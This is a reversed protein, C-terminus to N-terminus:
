FILHICIINSYFYCFSFVNNTKFFRKIKIWAFETKQQFVHHTWCWSMNHEHPDNKMHKKYSSNYCELGNFSFNDKLKNSWNRFLVQLFVWFLDFNVKQSLFFIFHVKCFQWLCFAKEFYKGLFKLFLQCKNPASVCCINSFSL